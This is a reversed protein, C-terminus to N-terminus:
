LLMRLLNLCCEPVCIKIFLTYELLAHIRKWMSCSFLVLSKGITWCVLKFKACRDFFNKRQFLNIGFSLTVCVAIKFAHSLSNWASLFYARKIFIDTGSYQKFNGKRCKRKQCLDTQAFFIKLRLALSLSTQQVIPLLRTRNKSAHSLSKWASNFYARKMFIDTGSYQKFNGNADSKKEPYIQKLSFIKRDFHWTWLPRSSSQQIDQEIKKLMHFLIEHVISINPKQKFNKSLINQSLEEYTLRDQQQKHVNVQDIHRNKQTESLDM